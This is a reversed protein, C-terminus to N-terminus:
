WCFRISCVLAWAPGYVSTYDYTGDKNIFILGWAGDQPSGVPEYTRDYKTLKIPGDYGHSDCVTEWEDGMVKSLDIVGAQLRLQDQIENVFAREKRESWFFFLFLVVVAALFIKVKHKHVSMAFIVPSTAM